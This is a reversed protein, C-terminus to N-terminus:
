REAVEPLEPPLHLSGAISNPNLTSVPLFVFFVSDQFDHIGIDVFLCSVPAVGLFGNRIESPQQKARFPSDAHLSDACEM